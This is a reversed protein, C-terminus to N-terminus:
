AQANRDIARLAEGRAILRKANSYTPVELLSGDLEVRGLGQARAAEFAAVIRAAQRLEDESPTLVGNVIAAHAPDVLSKASYGLRRAWITDREVGAADSWTYPCDVAVVNAARCEVIFRQRAYALELGDSGREAGLDAALDEAAMLCGITRRSAAAIAGTQVLGRAFEINPLLSTSGEAIGYDREFRTVAEDLRAVHQPEAVKPLAVIDPHGRMVAALDDMGDQDLPNVRVAVVAGQDRWAAYLEAALARAKPRLPPPTFDELEHILVDAGSAAAGQLVAENAGELLLWSRCLPAPRPKRM